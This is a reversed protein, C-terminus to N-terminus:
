LPPPSKPIVVTKGQDESIAAPGTQGFIERMFKGLTENTPGYGEMGIVADMVTLVLGAALGNKPDLPGSYDTKKTGLYRTKVGAAKMAEYTTAGSEAMAAQLQELANVLAGGAM